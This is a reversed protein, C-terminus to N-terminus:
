EDFSLRNWIPRAKPGADPFGAARVRVPRNGALHAAVQGGDADLASRTGEPHGAAGRSGATTWDARLCRDGPAPSSM